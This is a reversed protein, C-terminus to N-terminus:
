NSKKAQKLTPPKEFEADKQRYNNTVFPLNLHFRTMAIAKLNKNSSCM